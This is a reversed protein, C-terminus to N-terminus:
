EKVRLDDVSVDLAKAIRELSKLSSRYGLHESRSINPQPIGTRKSLTKQDIGRLIRFYKIPSVKGSRVNDYLDAFLRTKENKYIAQGEPDGFLMQLMDCESFAKKDDLGVVDYTIPIKYYDSKRSITQYLYSVIKVSCPNFISESHVPAYETFSDM